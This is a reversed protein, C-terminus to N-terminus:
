RRRRVLPARALLTECSAPFSRDHREGECATMRHRQRNKEQRDYESTIKIPEVSPADGRALGVSALVVEKRSKAAGFERLEDDLVLALGQADALARVVGAVREVVQLAVLEGILGRDVLREAHEFEGGGLASKWRVGDVFVRHPEVCRSRPDREAHTSERVTRRAASRRR